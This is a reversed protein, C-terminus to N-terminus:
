LLLQIGTRDLTRRAQELRNRVNDRSKRLRKIQRGRECQEEYKAIAYLPIYQSKKGNVFTQHRSRLCAYRGPDRGKGAATGGAATRQVYCDLLYPRAELEQLENQISELAKLSSAAEITLKVANFQPRYADIWGSAMQLLAQLSRDSRELFHIQTDLPLSNFADRLPHDVWQNRLNRAIGIHLMAQKRIVFTMGAAVPLQQWSTLPVAPLAWPDLEDNPLLSMM